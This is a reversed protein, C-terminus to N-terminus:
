RTILSFIKIEEQREVIGLSNGNMASPFFFFFFASVRLLLFLCNCTLVTYTHTDGSHRWLQGPPTPVEAHDTRLSTGGARAETHVAPDPEKRLFVVRGPTRVARQQGGWSTILQLRRPSLVLKYCAQRERDRRPSAPLSAPLESLLPLLPTETFSPFALFLLNLCAPWMSQEGAAIPQSSSSFQCSWMEKSMRRDICVLPLFILAGCYLASLPSWSHRTEHNKDCFPFNLASIWRSFM